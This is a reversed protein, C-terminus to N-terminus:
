GVSWALAVPIHQFLPSSYQTIENELLIAFHLFPLASQARSVQAFNQPSYKIKSKQKNNKLNTVNSSQLIKTLIKTENPKM